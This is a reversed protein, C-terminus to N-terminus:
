KYFYTSSNLSVYGTRLNAVRKQGFNIKTSVSVFIFLMYLLKFIWGGIKYIYIAFFVKHYMIQYSKKRWIYCFCCLNSNSYSLMSLM